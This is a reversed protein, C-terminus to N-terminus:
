RRHPYWSQKPRWTCPVPVRTPTHMHSASGNKGQDRAVALQLNGCCTPGCCNCCLVSCWGAAWCTCECSVQHAKYTWTTRCGEPVYLKWSCVALTPPAKAAGGAVHSSQFTSPQTNPHSFLASSRMRFRCMSERLFINCSSLTSPTTLCEGSYLMLSCCLMHSCLM